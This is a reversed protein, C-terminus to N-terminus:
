KWKIGVSSVDGWYFGGADRGQLSPERQPLHIQIATAQQLGKSCLGLGQSVSLQEGVPEPQSLLWGVREFGFRASDGQCLGGVAAKPSWATANSM